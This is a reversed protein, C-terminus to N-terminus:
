CFIKFKVSTEAGCLYMVGQVIGDTYEDFKAIGTPISKINGDRGKDIKALTRKWISM